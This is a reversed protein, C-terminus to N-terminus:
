GFERINPVMGLSFYIVKSSYIFIYRREGSLVRNKRLVKGKIHIIKWDSQECKSLSTSLLNIIM